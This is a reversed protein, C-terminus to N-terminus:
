LLYLFDTFAKLIRFSNSVSARASVSMLGSDIIKRATQIGAGLITDPAVGLYLGKQDTIRILEEADELATTFMKETYVHKGALLMKKIIEYHSTPPTLVVVLEIDDANAVEDITLVKEIGFKDAQKRAAEESRNSVAVM